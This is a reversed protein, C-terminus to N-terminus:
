EFICILTVGDVLERAHGNAKVEFQRGILRLFERPKVHVCQGDVGDTHASLLEHDPVEHSDLWDAIVRLRSSALHKNHNSPVFDSSVATETECCM